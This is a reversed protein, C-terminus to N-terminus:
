THPGEGAESDDAAPTLVGAEVLIQRIADIRTADQNAAEVQVHIPNAADGTVKANLELSDGYTGKRLRSLVWRVTPGDDNEVLRWLATEASDALVERAARTVEALPPYREIYNAVTQRDCDLIRSAESLNGRARVLAEAVIEQSFMLLPM